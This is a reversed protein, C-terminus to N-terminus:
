VLHADDNEVRFILDHLVDAAVLSGDIAGNQAGGLYEARSDYAVAGADDNAVVM